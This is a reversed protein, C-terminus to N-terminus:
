KEKFFFLHKLIIWFRFTEREAQSFPARRGRPFTEKDVDHIDPSAVNGEGRQREGGADGDERKRSM